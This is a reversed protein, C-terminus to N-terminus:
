GFHDYNISALGLYSPEGKLRFTTAQQLKLNVNPLKPFVVDWPDQGAQVEQQLIQLIDQVENPTRDTDNVLFNFAKTFRKIRNKIDTDDSIPEDTGYFDGALGSIQGYTFKLKNQLTLPVKSAKVKKGTSQFIEINDSLFM